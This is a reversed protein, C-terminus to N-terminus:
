PMQSLLDRAKAASPDSPYKRILLELKQRALDTKGAAEYAHALNLLTAAATATDATRTTSKSPALTVSELMDLMNGFWQPKLNPYGIDDPAIVAKLMHEFGDHTMAGPILSRIGDNYNDTEFGFVHPRHKALSLMPASPPHGIGRYVQTANIPFTRWYGTNWIWVDGAFIDPTALGVDEIWGSGMLFIRRSDIIYRAKLNYVADISLGTEEGLSLQPKKAIIFILHRTNLIPQITSPAKTAGDGTMYVVIGPPKDPSYDTPVYIFFPQDSFDYEPGIDKEALRDILKPRASQPSRHTFTIKFAGTQPAPQTAPEVAVAFSSFSAILTLVPIVALRSM